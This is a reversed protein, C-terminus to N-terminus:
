GHFSILSEVELESIIFILSITSLNLIIVIKCAIVRILTLIGKNFGVVM